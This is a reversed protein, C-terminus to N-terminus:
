PDGLGKPNEYIAKAASTMTEAIRKTRIGPKQANAIRELPAM